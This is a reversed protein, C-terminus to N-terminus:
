IKYIIVSSNKFVIEYYNFPDAAKLGKSLRYKAEEQGYYLYDINNELLFEKQAEPSMTTYFNRAFNLKEQGNPTTLYHGFYVRNDTYAPIYNGIYYLSLVNGNNQVTSLYNLAEHEKISLFYFPNDETVKLLKAFSQPKTISSLLVILAVLTFLFLKQKIQFILSFALITTWIYFGRLFFVYFGISLFIFILQVVFLIKIYTIEKKQSSFSLFSWIAIPGIVGLGFILSPLSLKTVQQNVLGSFGPNHPLGSLFSIYFIGFMSILLVPYIFVRQDKEKLYEYTGIAASSALYLLILPTHIICNLIAIPVSAYLYKINKTKVFEIFFTIALMFLSISLAIHGKEFINISSFASSTVDASNPIANTWGLGGGLMIMSFVILRQWRIKFFLNAVFYTSVAFFISAIISSLNFLLTPEIHILRNFVGLLTYYQYIFEGKHEITTYNNELFVGERQGYRIYSIYLNEDWADFWSAHGSFWYGEPTHTAHYYTPYKALFIAVLTIVAVLIVELIKKMTKHNQLGRKARGWFSM